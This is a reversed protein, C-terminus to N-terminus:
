IVRCSMQLGGDALVSDGGASRPCLGELFFAELPPIEALLLFADGFRLRVDWVISSRTGPVSGPNPHQQQSYGPSSGWQQQLWLSVRRQHGVCSCFYLPM